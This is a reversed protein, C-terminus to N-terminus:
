NESTLIHIQSELLNHIPCKNAIEVLRQHQEATLDGVFHIQRQIESQPGEKSIKVQVNVDKLPWKKRDAYMTVTIATCAALASELLAHPDMGRDQGGEKAGVDTMIAHNANKIEFEFGSIKQTTTSM